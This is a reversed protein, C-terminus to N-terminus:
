LRPHSLPPAPFVEHHDQKKRAMTGMANGRLFWYERGKAGPINFKIISWVDHKQKKIMFNHTSRFLPFIPSSISFMWESILRKKANNLNVYKDM